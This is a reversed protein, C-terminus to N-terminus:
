TEDSPPFVQCGALPWTPETLVVQVYLKEAGAGPVYVISDRATSSLRLTSVGFVLTEYVTVGDEANLRNLALVVGGMAFSGFAISTPTFKVEAAVPEIVPM